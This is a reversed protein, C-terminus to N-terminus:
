KGQQIFTFQINYKIVKIKLSHQQTLFKKCIKLGSHSTRVMDLLSQLIYQIFILLKNAADSFIQLNHRVTKLHFLIIPDSSNVAPSVPSATSNETM